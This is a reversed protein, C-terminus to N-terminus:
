EADKNVLYDEIAQGVMTTGEATVLTPVVRLGKPVDEPTLEDILVYDPKIGRVDLRAKLAKCPACTSSTYIKDM